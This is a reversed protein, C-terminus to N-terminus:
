PPALAAWCARQSRQWREFSAWDALASAGHWRVGQVVSADVLLQSGRGVEKRTCVVLVNHPLIGSM